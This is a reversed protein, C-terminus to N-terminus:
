NWGEFINYLNFYKEFTEYNYKNNQKILRIAIFFIIELYKRISCPLNKMFLDYITPNFPTLTNKSVTLAVINLISFNIVSVHDISKTKIFYQEICNFINRQTIKLNIPKFIEYENDNGTPTDSNNNSDLNFINKIVNQSLADLLYKYEFILNKDLNIGLYEYYYRINTKVAKNMKASIYRSDILDYVIKEM